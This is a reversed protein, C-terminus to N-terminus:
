GGPLERDIREFLAEIRARPMASEFFGHSLTLYGACGSLGFASFPPCCPPILVEAAVVRIGGFDLKKEDIWGLNTFGSPVTGRRALRHFIFPVVRRVAGYTVLSRTVLCSGFLYGFGLHNKKLRDIEGKVRRLTDDFTRGPDVNLQPFFFSSLNCLAAGRGDPLYRRLDVTCVLRLRDSGNWRSERIMARFVAAVFLDNLTAGTRKGCSRLTRRVTLISFSM